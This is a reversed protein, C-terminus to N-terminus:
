LKQLVPQWFIKKRLNKLKVLHWLIKMTKYRLYVIHKKDVLGRIHIKHKKLTCVCSAGPSNGRRLSKIM